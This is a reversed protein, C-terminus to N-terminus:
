VSFFAGVGVRHLPTEMKPIVRHAESARIAVGDVWLGLFLCSM